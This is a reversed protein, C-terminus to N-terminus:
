QKFYVTIADIPKGRHDIGSVIATIIDRSISVRSRIDLVAKGNRTYITELRHLELRKSSVGQFPSDIIRGEGGAMPVRYRSAIPSGDASTGNITVDLEQGVETITIVEEKPPQGVQYLSKSSNLKWTGAFPDTAFAFSAASLFAFWLKSLVPDTFLQIASNGEFAAHPVSFRRWNQPQLGQTESNSSRYTTRPNQILGTTCVALLARGNSRMAPSGKMRPARGGISGSITRAQAASARSSVRQWPPWTGGRAPPLRRRGIESPWKRVLLFVSSDAACGASRNPPDRGCRTSAVYVPTRTKAQYPLVNDGVLRVPKV